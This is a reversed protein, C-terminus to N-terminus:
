RTSIKIEKLLNEGYWFQMKYTGPKLNKDPDYNGHGNRGGLEMGIAGSVPFVVGMIYIFFLVKLVKYFIILNPV